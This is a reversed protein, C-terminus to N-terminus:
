LQHAAARHAPLDPLWQQFNQNESQKAGNLLFMKLKLSFLSCVDGSSSCIHALLHDTDERLSFLKTELFLLM